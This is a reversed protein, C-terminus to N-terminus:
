RESDREHDVEENEEIEDISNVRSIGTKIQKSRNVSKDKM